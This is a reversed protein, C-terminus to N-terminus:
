FLNRVQEFDIGHERFAQEPTKGQMSNAFQRFQPNTQYLHAYFAGTDGQSAMQLANMAQAIHNTPNQDQFLSSPM